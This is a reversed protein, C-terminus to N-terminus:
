TEEESGPFAAQWKAFERDMVAKRAAIRAEIRERLEPPLLAMSERLDTPDGGQHATPRKDRAKHVPRKRRRSESQLNLRPPESSLAPNEQASCRPTERRPLACSKEAPYVAPNEQATVGESSVASNRQASAEESSRASNEQATVIRARRPPEAALAEPWGMAAFWPRLDYGLSAHPYRRRCKVVLGTLEASKLWARVKWPPISLREAILAIRPWAWPRRPSGHEAVALMVKLVSGPLRAIGATLRYRGWDQASRKETTSDRQV